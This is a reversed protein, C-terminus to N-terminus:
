ARVTVHNVADRVGWVYWADHEVATRESAAPITSDFAVVGDRSGVQIATAHVAPDRELVLRVADCIADDSDEEPPQAGLTDIM